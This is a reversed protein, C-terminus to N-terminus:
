KTTIEVIIDDFTANSPLTYNGVRIISAKGKKVIYKNFEDASDILGVKDLMDAVQGSSMGSKITFSVEQTSDQNVKEPEVTTEPNKTPEATPIPTPANTPADTPLITPEITPEVSPTGSPQVETGTPKIDRLLKLEMEEKTIMGLGVARDMIERDSLKENTNVGITLILTTLIIGVGLGRM